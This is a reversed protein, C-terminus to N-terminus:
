SRGRRGMASCRDRAYAARQAPTLRRLQQYSLKRPKEGQAETIVDLIEDTWRAELLHRVDLGFKDVM